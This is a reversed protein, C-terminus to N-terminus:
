IGVRRGPDPSEEGVLLGGFPASFSGPLLCRTLRPMGPQLGVCQPSFNSSAQQVGRVSM